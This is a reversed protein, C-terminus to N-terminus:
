AEHQDLSPGRALATGAPDCRHPHELGGLGLPFPGARDRDSRDEVRHRGTTSGKRTPM